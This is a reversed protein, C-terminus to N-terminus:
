RMIKPAGFIVHWSLHNEPFKGSFFLFNQFILFHESDSLIHKLGFFFNEGEPWFTGQSKTEAAGMVEWLSLGWGSPGFM